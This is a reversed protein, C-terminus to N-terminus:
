RAQPLFTRSTERSLRMPVRPRMSLGLSVLIGLATLMQLNALVARANTGPPWPLSDIFPATVLIALLGMALASRASDRIVLSRRSDEWALEAFTASTTPRSILLRGGVEAVALLALAPLVFFASILLNGRSSDRLIQLVLSFLAFAVVARTTWRLWAPSYDGLTVARSHGIRKRSPQSGSHASGGIAGGLVAGATAALVIVGTAPSGRDAGSLLVWIAGFLAGAALGAGVGILRSRIWASLFRDGHTPREAAEDRSGVEGQPTRAARGFRAPVVLAAGVVLLGLAVAMGTVVWTSAAVFALSSALSPGM